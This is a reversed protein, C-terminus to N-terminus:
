WTAITARKWTNTATCVYVFGSDWAIQGTTCTASSSAPTLTTAVGFQGHQVFTLTNSSDFIHTGDHNQVSLIPSTSSGGVTQNNTVTVSVDSTQTGDINGAITAFKGANSFFLNLVSANGPTIAFAAPGFNLGAFDLRSTGIGGVDENFLSLINNGSRSFTATAVSQGVPATVALPIIGTGNALVKLVIGTGSNSAGDAVTVLTNTSTATGGTLAVTDANPLTWAVNAAPSTVQDLSPASGSATAWIGDGRWFTSSSASTGSNLHSVALNGTVGTSLSVSGAGGVGVSCVVNQPVSGDTGVDITISTTTLATIARIPRVTLIGTVDSGSFGTGTWCQIQVTHITSTILGLSTLDITMFRVPGAAASSVTQACLVETFLVAGILLRITQRM